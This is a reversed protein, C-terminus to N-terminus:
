KIGGWYLKNFWTKQRQDWSLNTVRSFLRAIEGESPMPNTSLASCPTMPEGGRVENMESKELQNMKFNKM